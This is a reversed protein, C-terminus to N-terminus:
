ELSWAARTPMDDRFARRTTLEVVFLVVVIVAGIAAAALDWAPDFRLPPEPTATTAAIRVFSVTIRSLVLGLGAGGLMGFALIATARVRFQRRLTAPPVGQAELDFLEGREDRLESILAVAFGVVSLALAVAAALELMVVIGHALPDTRLTHELEDRASVELSAFPPERLKRAVDASRGPPVSLWLETPTGTGPLLSDLATALRSEDAVVFGYGQDDAGPFRSAVGVIRAPIQAEQFDLTLLAGPGAAKAIAPSVLVRLAGRDTVQPRRLLVTQGSTFDYSLRIPPGPHVTGDGTAVWGRWDGLRMGGATLAGPEVAGSPTSSVSDEASRHTLGLQVGTALSVALGVIQRTGAPVRAHLHWRGQDREGLLIATVAGSSTEIELSLAVAVGSVRVDLAVSRAAAPLRLGVLHAPGDAGLREALKRQSQHAYDSRWHLTALGAAPVGLVTPSLVGTGEGPVTATQRVVPYARADPALREYRAISAAELPQVLATSETVTFDAPVAFAAEDAAGADLTSRYSLAFLALGLSVLMFAATVRSRTPTRALGLVALRAAVPAARAAREAVRM